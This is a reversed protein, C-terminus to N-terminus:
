RQDFQRLRLFSRVSTVIEDNSGLSSTCEANERGRIRSDSTNLEELRTRWFYRGKGQAAAHPRADLVDITGFAIESTPTDSLTAERGEGQRESYSYRACGLAAILTVLLEHGLFRWYDFDAEKYTGSWGRPNEYHELTPILARHIARATEADNMVAVAHALRTFSAVTPITTEIAALYQQTTAGDRFLPPALAELERTISTMARRTAPARNPAGAEIATIAADIDTPAPPAQPISDIAAKIAAKLISALRRRETAKDTADPSM